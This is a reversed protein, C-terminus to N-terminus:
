VPDALSGKEPERYIRSDCGPGDCSGGRAHRGRNGLRSAGPMYNIQRWLLGFAQGTIRSERRHADTSQSNVLSKLAAAEPCSKEGIGSMPRHMGIDGGERKEDVGFILLCDGEALM